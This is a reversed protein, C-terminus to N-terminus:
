LQVYQPGSTPETPNCSAFATSAPYSTFTPVNGNLAEPLARMMPSSSPNTFTTLSVFYSSIKPTCMMPGCAVSSIASAHTAICSSDVASSNPRVICACGVTESATISAASPTCPIVL